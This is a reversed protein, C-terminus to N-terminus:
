CTVISLIVLNKSKVWRLTNYVNFFVINQFISRTGEYPSLSPSRRLFYRLPFAFFCLYPTNSLLAGVHVSPGFLLFLCSVPSIAYSPAEFKETEVSYQHSLWITYPSLPSSTVHMPYIPSAYFTARLTHLFLMVTFVLDCIRKINHRTYGNGPLSETFVNGRLTRM